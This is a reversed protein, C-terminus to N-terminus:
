NGLGPNGLRSKPFFPFNAPSGPEYGLGKQVAQIKIWLQCLEPDSFKQEYNWILNLYIYTTFYIILVNEFNSNKKQM